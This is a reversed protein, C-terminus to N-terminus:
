SKLLMSQGLHRVPCPILQISYKSAEYAIDDVRKSNLGHVVDRAGFQLYISDAYDILEQAQSDSM